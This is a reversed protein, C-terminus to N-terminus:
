RGNPEADADPPQVDIVYHQADIRELTVSPIFAFSTGLVVDFAQEEQGYSQSETTFSFAQTDDGHPACWLTVTADRGEGETEVSLHDRCTDSLEMEIGDFPRFGYFIRAAVPFRYRPDGPEWYAPHAHELFVNDLSLNDAETHNAGQSDVGEGLDASCGVSWAVSLATLAIVTRVHTGM